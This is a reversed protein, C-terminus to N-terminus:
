SETNNHHCGDEKRSGRCIRDHTTGQDVVSVFRFVPVKAVAHWGLGDIIPGANARQSYLTMLRRRVGDYCTNCRIRLVSNLGQNSHGLRDALQQGLPRNKASSPCFKRLSLKLLKEFGKTYFNISFVLTVVLHNLKPSLFHDLENRFITGSLTEAFHVHNSFSM